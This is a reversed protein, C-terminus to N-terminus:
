QPQLEIAQKQFKMRDNKQPQNQKTTLFTALMDGVSYVSFM